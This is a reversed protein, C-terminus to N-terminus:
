RIRENYLFTVTFLAKDDPFASPLPDVPNSLRLGNFAASDFSDVGSVKVIELETLSGNRHVYFTITVRGHLAMAAQPILPLWNRRVRAEFRRLWPGFDVGKSDFQIAADTDTNGGQKNEFNQDKIYQNLNKLSQGLSGGVPKPAPDLLGKDTPNSRPADVPPATNPNPSEPGKMKEAPPAGEVKEPTNGKSFPDPDKADPPKILTSSRRDLDSPPAQAKPLRPLERLPEIRTYVLQKDSPPSVPVAQNLRFWEAPTVLYVIVLVAHLLLALLVAERRTMPATLSPTDPRYDEFDFYM